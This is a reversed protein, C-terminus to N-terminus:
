ADNLLYSEYSYGADYGKCYEQTHGSCSVYGRSDGNHKDADVAANYYGVFFDMYNENTHAPLTSNPNSTDARSAVGQNYGKIYDPNNSTAPLGSYGQVDGRNLQILSSGNIYGLLFENTHHGKLALGLYGQAFGANYRDSKGPQPALESEGYAVQYCFVGILFAALAITAIREIKKNM